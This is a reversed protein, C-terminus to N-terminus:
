CWLSILPCLLSQAATRRGEWVGASVQVGGACGHRSRALWHMTRTTLIRVARATQPVAASANEFGTLENLTVCCHHIRLSRHGLSCVGNQWGGQQLM